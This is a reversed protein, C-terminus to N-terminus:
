CVLSEILFCFLKRGVRNPHTGGRLVRLHFVINGDPINILKLAPCSIRVFNRTRTAHTRVSRSPHARWNTRRIRPTLSKEDHCRSRLWISGEYAWKQSSQESYSNMSRQTKEKGRSHTQIYSDERKASKNQWDSEQNHNVIFSSRQSISRSYRYLTWGQSGVKKCCTKWANWALHYERQVATKGHRAGHAAGKKIVYNPISFADLPLRNLFNRRTETFWATDELAFCLGELGIFVSLVSYKHLKACSSYSWM